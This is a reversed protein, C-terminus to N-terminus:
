RTFPTEMRQFDAKKQPTARIIEAQPPESEDEGTVVGAGEVSGEVLRGAGVVVTMSVVVVVV